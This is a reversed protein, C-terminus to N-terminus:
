KKIYPLILKIFDKILSVENKTSGKLVELLGRLEIDMTEKYIDNFSENVMINEMYYTFGYLLYDTSINLVKSVNALTDISMKREGRELQGVYYPSLGLLEAFNERSLGLKERQTRIRSGIEKYNLPNNIKYM